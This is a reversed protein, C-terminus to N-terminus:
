HLQCVDDASRMAKTTALIDAKKAFKNTVDVASGPNMSLRTGAM